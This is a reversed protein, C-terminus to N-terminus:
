WSNKEDFSRHTLSWGTTKKDKLKTYDKFFSAFNLKERTNEKM